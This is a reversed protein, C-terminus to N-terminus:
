FHFQPGLKPTARSGEDNRDAGPTPCKREITTVYQPVLPLSPSRTRNATVDFAPDPDSFARSRTPPSQQHEKTLFERFQAISFIRDQLESTLAQGYSSKLEDLVESGKGMVCISPHHALAKALSGTTSSHAIIKANKFHTLLDNFLPENIWDQNPRGYNSEVCIYRISSEEVNQARLFEHLARIQAPPEQFAQQSPFTLVNMHPVRLFVARLMKESSEFHVTVLFNIM